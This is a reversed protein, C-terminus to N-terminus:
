NYRPIFVEIITDQSLLSHNGPALFINQCLIDPVKLAINIVIDDYKQVSPWACYAETSPLNTLKYRKEKWGLM